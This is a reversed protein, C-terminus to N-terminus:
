GSARHFKLKLCFVVSITSPRASAPGIVSQESQMNEGEVRLVPSDTCAILSVKVRLRQICLITAAICDAASSYGDEGGGFRVNINTASSKYM